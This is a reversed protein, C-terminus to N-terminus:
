FKNLLFDAYYNPIESNEIAEVVKGIPYTLQIIETELKEETLTLIAYSALRNEERSRGVSGTNVAWKDEIQKIYSLHTHGMFIIDAKSETFMANFIEDDESEYIYNTNSDISAHVLQINWHKQGIKYNLKIHFPLEALFQKNEATITKKSHNIAIFRAETEIESHRAIPIIPLDRGIREDHNGMICSINLKKIKDIVENGWPAFDVLDGLCYKQKIGRVEIDNLVTELAPLNGHIDGFIAIKIMKM